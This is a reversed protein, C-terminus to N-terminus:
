VADGAPLQHPYHSRCVECWHELEAVVEVREEQDWDALTLYVRHLAVVVEEGRGCSDCLGIRSGNSM